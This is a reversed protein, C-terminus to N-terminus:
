EAVGIWTGCIRSPDFWAIRRGVWPVCSPVLHPRQCSAQWDRTQLLYAVPCDGFRALRRGLPSGPERPSVLVVPPAAFHAANVDSGFERRAEKTPEPWGYARRFLTISVNLDHVAIIVQAIGTLGADRMAASPQVRWERPTKDQIMFPLVAGAPGPGATATEWRLDKSDVTLRGGPEPGTVPVGLGRLREVEGHINGTRVAWACAGADAAMFKGWGAMMGSGHDFPKIPAILELYSGDDFGALAMHTIGNAHPGGYTTPLGAAAFARQMADINSGAITVHDLTLIM